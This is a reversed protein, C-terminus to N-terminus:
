RRKFSISLIPGAAFHNIIGLINFLFTSLNGATIVLLFQLFKFSVLDMSVGSVYRDVKVNVNLCGYNIGARSM